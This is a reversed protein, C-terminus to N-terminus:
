DIIDFFDVGEGGEVGDCGIGGRGVSGNNVGGSDIGGHQADAVGLTAVTEVGIGGVAGDGDDCGCLCQAVVEEVARGSDVEDAHFVADELDDFLLAM